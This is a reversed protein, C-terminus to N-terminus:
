SLMAEGEERWLHVLVETDCRSKFHYGKAKLEERLEVYNYIEGNFVVCVSGDTNFMPQKGNEPDVVALRAHGVVARNGLQEVGQEDRGRYFIQNIMTAVHEPQVGNANIVGAIGCM